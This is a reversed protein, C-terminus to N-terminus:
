AEASNGVPVQGVLPALKARLVAGSVSAAANTRVWEVGLRAQPEWAAPNDLLERLHTAVQHHRTVVWARNSGPPLSPEGHEDARQMVVCGAALAEVGFVGPAEAYFQNLVIHARRLHAQVEAHPQRVLEVYEFDYGEARLQAIAARVLQTGKVVPSSPAHVIVPTAVDRYKSLETVIDDDPHFYLFHESPRRLYGVQDGDASFILDAQAEASAAILKKQQEYSETAFTLSTEALYSALNPDGTRSEREASLRPSRIDNGTFYCVLRKGHSRLLAFEFARGDDLRDLFGVESVYVFGSARCLLEGLKWPGRVVAELHTRAPTAVWTYSHDYFPHGRLLASESNALAHSIARVLGAVEIPGVVWDIHAGRRRLRHWLVSARVVFKQVAPDIGAFISMSM